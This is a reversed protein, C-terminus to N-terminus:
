IYSVTGGANVVKYWRKYTKEDVDSFDYNLMQRLWYAFYEQKNEFTHRCFYKESKTEIEFQEILTLHNFLLNPYKQQLDQMASELSKREGNKDFFVKSHPMNFVRTNGNETVSFSTSLLNQMIM